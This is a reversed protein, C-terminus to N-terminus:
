RPEDWRTFGAERAEDESEFVQGDSGLKYGPSDPTHYLGSEPDAHITTDDDTEWGAHPDLDVAATEGADIVARPPDTTPEDAADALPDGHPSGAGATDSENVAEARLPEPESEPPEVVMGATDADVGATDPEVVPEPEVPEPAPEVVPEPEVPESEPPEIVPEPEAPPVPEVVPEPEVPRATEEVVQPERAPEPQEVPQPEPQLPSSLNSPVTIDSPPPVMANTDSAGPGIADSRDDAPLANDSHRRSRTAVLALVAIVAILLAILLFKMM